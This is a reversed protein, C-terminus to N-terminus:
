VRVIYISNLISVNESFWQTFKEVHRKWLLSTNRELGKNLLNLEELHM